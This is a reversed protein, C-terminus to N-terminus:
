GISSHFDCPYLAVLGGVIFSFYFEWYLAPNDKIELRDENHQITLTPLAM